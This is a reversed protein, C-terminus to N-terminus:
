AACSPPSEGSNNDVEYDAAPYFFPQNDVSTVNVLSGYLWAKTGIEVVVDTGCLVALRLRDAGTFGFSISAGPTQTATLTNNNAGQYSFHTWNGVSSYWIGLSQDDVIVFDTAQRELFAM